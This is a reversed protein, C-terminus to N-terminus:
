KELFGNSTVTLAPDVARKSHEAVPRGLGVIAQDFSPPSSKGAAVSLRICTM